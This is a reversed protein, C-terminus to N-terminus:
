SLLIFIYITHLISLLPSLCRNTILNMKNREVRAKASSKIVFIVFPVVHFQVSLGTPVRLICFPLTGTSSNYCKFISRKAWVSPNKITKSELFKTGSM